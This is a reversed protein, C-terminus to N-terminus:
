LSSLLVTGVETEKDSERPFVMAPALLPRFRWLNVNGCGSKRGENNGPYTRVATHKSLFRDTCGKHQLRFNGVSGDMRQGYERFANKQERAFNGFAVPM